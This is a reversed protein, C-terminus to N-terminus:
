RRAATRGRAFEALHDGRALVDFGEAVHTASATVGPM